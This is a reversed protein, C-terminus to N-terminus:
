LENGAVVYISACSAPSEQGLQYCGEIFADNIIDGGMLANFQFNALPKFMIGGTAIISLQAGLVDRSLTDQRYVRRHGAAIDDASLAELHSLIGMKVAIRRSPAEANPVIVYLRGTPTLLRGLKSIVGIPDIVHELVHSFVITEFRQDTEYDEILAQVFTARDSYKGRTHNLFEFTPEIVTLDNFRNLLLGTQEGHACGVQLCPGERFYPELTRMMFTRMAADFPAAGEGYSAIVDSLRKNEESLNQGSAM